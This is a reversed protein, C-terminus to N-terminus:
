GIRIYEEAIGIWLHYIRESFPKVLNPQPPESGGFEDNSELPRARLSQTKNLALKREQETLKFKALTAVDLLGEYLEKAFNCRRLTSCLRLDCLLMLTPNNLVEKAMFRVFFHLPITQLQFGMRDLLDILQNLYTFTLEAKDFLFVGMFNYDEYTKVKELFEKPLQLKIWDEHSSPM